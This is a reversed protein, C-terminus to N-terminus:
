YAIVPTVYISTPRPGHCVTLGGVSTRDTAPLDVSQRIHPLTIRIHAPSTVDRIPTYCIMEDAVFFGYAGPRLYLLHPTRARPFAWPGGGLRYRVAARGPPPQLAIRPYGRISCTRAARNQIAYELALTQSVGGIPPGPTVALDRVTCRRAARDPQSAPPHPSVHVSRVVAGAAHREASTYGHGLCATIQLNAPQVDASAYVDIGYATGFPCDARAAASAGATIDARYGSITGNAPRLLPQRYSYDVTVDVVVQGRRLRGIGANPSCSWPQDARRAPRCSRPLAANTLFGMSDPVLTEAAFAGAHWAPPHRLTLAAFHTLVLPRPRILSPASPAHSVCGGAALLAGTALLGACLSQWRWTM